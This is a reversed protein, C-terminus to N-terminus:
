GKDFRSLVQVRPNLASVKRQLFLNGNLRRQPLKTLFKHCEHMCAQVTWDRSNGEIRQHVTHLLQVCNCFGSVRGRYGCRGKLGLNSHKLGLKCM